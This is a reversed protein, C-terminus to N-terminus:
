STEAELFRLFEVAVEAREGHPIGLYNGDVVEDVSRWAAFLVTPETAFPTALQAVVAIEPNAARAQRSAATVVERYRAPDAELAQAQVDLIDAVAAAAAPIGCRLFADQVAEAPLQPCAAGPVSTLNPHPTLIVEYGQAHALEAFAEMYLAPLQQEQLPTADWREPDYMVARIEDPIVGTEVDRAFASYSAWGVAPVADPWGGVAYVEPGTLIRGALTPDLSAVVRATNATLVWMQPAAAVPAASGADLSLVLLAVFGIAGASRTRLAGLLRSRDGSMEM